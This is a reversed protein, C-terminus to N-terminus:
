HMKCERDKIACEKISQCALEFGEPFHHHPHNMENKFISLTDINLDIWIANLRTLAEPGNLFLDCQRLHISRLTLTSNSKVQLSHLM